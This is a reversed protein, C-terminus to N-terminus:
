IIKRKEWFKGLFYRGDGTWAPGGFFLRVRHSTSPNRLTKANRHLNSGLRKVQLSGFVARELFMRPLSKLQLFLYEQLGM